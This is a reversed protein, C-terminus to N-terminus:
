GERMGEPNTILPQLMTIVKEAQENTALKHKRSCKKGMWCKGLVANPACAKGFLSYVESNTKNCYKLVAAFSPNGAKKLPKTLTQSLKSHWNNSNDKEIKIRKEKPAETEHDKNDEKPRLHAKKGKAEQKQDPVLYLAEPVDAHELHRRKANLSTLLFEFEAIVTSEGLSFHRAQLLVIWLITAKTEKSM